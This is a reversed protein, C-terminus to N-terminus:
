KVKKQLLYFAFFKNENNQAVQLIIKSFKEFKLQKKQQM